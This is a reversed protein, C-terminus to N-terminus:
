KDVILDKMEVSLISAIKKLVELTPQQRNACYSNVTSYSKGLKTALETQAMDKEVLVVKIRNLKEMKSINNQNCIYENEVLMAYIKWM